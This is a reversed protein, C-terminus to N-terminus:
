AAEPPPETPAECLQLACRACAVDREAVAKAVRLVERRVLELDLEIRRLRDDIRELIDISM